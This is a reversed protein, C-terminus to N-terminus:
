LPQLPAPQLDVGADNGFEDPLKKAAGPRLLLDYHELNFHYELKIDPRAIILWPDVDTIHFIIPEDNGWVYVEITELPARENYDHVGFAETHKWHDLTETIADASIAKTSFWKIDFDLALTQEPLVLKSLRTDPPLLTRAVLTGIQSSILPYYHDDIMHVENNIKAYRYNNIPNAIGFGITHDNFTISTAPNVLGFKNLDLTNAVYKAHSETNLLKLITNIRFDNAPIKLPATLQWQTPTKEINVVRENHRINIKTISSIEINSLVTITEKSKNGTSIAFFGIVAILLLLLANVLLRSKM